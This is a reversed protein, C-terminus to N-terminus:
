RANSPDSTTASQRSAKEVRGYEEVYHAAGFRPVAAIRPISRRFHPFLLAMARRAPVAPQGSVEFNSVCNSKLHGVCKSM